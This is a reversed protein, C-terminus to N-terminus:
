VSREIPVRPERSRSADRSRTDSNLLRHRRCAASGAAPPAEHVAAPPTQSVGQMIKDLPLYLLNRGRAIGGSRPSTATSGSCPKSIVHPRPDGAAGEPVRDPHRQFTAYRRAGTGRDRAKYAAAEEALRAHRVPRARPVVDNAYAWAENQRTRARAPRSCMTSHRRSRSPRCHRRQQLNIGVVEVGIKYRSHHDADSQARAPLRTASRPLRRGDADQKWSQAGGGEAVQVVADAPNRSEFLWARM